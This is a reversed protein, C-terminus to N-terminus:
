HMIIALIALNSRPSTPVQLKVWHDLVTKESPGRKLVDPRQQADAPCLFNPYRDGQAAIYRPRLRFKRSNEIFIFPNSNWRSARSRIRDIGHAKVVIREAPVIACGSLEIDLM